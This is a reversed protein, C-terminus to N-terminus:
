SMFGPSKRAAGRKYAKIENRPEYGQQAKSMGIRAVCEAGVLASMRSEGDKGSAELLSKLKRRAISQAAESRHIVSLGDFISRGAHEGDTITLRFTVRKGHGDNHPKVEVGQVVVNYDGDPINDYDVASVEDLGLDNLDLDNDNDNANPFM